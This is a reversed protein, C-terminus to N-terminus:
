RSASAKTAAPKLLDRVKNSLQQGTYPKPLFQYGDESLDQRAVADFAYGSTFLVKLEPAILKVRRALEKGGMDPMVVDTVLLEIDRHEALKKLAERGNAALIVRYGLSTLVIGGLDRVMEEDEVLLVAEGSGMRQSSFPDGSSSEKADGASPLYVRFTTGKGIETQVTIHGGSQKIIGDCTALGLGTGSGPAKTTFFPEFLRAKVEPSMGIGTDSVALMVYDGAPIGPELDPHDPGFTVNSTRITLLGGRPMADRANVVLNLIVQQIQGPDAKISSVNQDTITRLEIHEGILRQVMKELDTVIADLRMVKPQLTQKRSFALLQQTLSSARDSARCIENVYKRASDSLSNNQLLVESYGYIATLLNNFDHAVGGALQGIAQVKQAQLYREELQRRETIDEVAGAYNIVEGQLGHFARATMRIHLLAGDKRRWTVHRGQVNTGASLESLFDRGFIPASAEEASQLYAQMENVTGFGFIALMAPNAMELGGSAKLRFLGIPSDQFLSRFREESQALEATRNQIEMERLRNMVELRGQRSVVQDLESAGARIMLILTAAELVLWLGREVAHVPSAFLGSMAAERLAAWLALHSLTAAGVATWLVRPDRYQALFAVSGFLLSLGLVHPLGLQLLLSAMGLLAIAVLHRTSEAGKAKVTRLFPVVTLLGGILVTPLLALGAVPLKPFLLHGAAGATALAWEALLVRGFLTDLREHHGKFAATFRQKVGYEDGTGNSEAFRQEFFIQGVQKPIRVFSEVSNRKPFPAATRSTTTSHESM